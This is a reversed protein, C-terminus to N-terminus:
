YLTVKRYDFGMGQEPENGIIFGPLCNSGIEEQIYKDASTVAPMQISMNNTGEETKLFHWHGKLQLNFREREGFLAMLDASKKKSLGSDGHQAFVCLNGKVLRLLNNEPTIFEVRNPYKIDLMRQVFGSIIKGGTRSKDEDRGDAIRDHNGHISAFTIKVDTNQIVYEIMKMISEAAFFIQESQKLDMEESHNPHMGGEIPSELLDGLSIIVIEGSNKRKAELVTEEAIKMMREHAIDKNYGRGFMTDEFRKGYHNDGYISFITPGVKVNTSKKYSKTKKTRKSIVTKNNKLLEKIKDKEFFGDLIGDVWNFSDKIVSLEKQSDFYRKEYYKHRENDVRKLITHEKNRHILSVIEDASMEEMTHPSVPLSSKTVNFARLIRKFDRYSLDPFERSVARLTMGAGDMGSYLRYVADMQERTLTGELPKEDRILIKYKYGTIRKLKAGNGDTFIEKGRLTEGKSREDYAKDVNADYEIEEVESRNLNLPNANTTSILFNGGGKTKKAPITGALVGNSRVNNAVTEQFENRAEVLADYEDQTVTGKGKQLNKFTNKITKSVLDRSFGLASSSKNIPIGNKTAHRLISLSNRISDNM